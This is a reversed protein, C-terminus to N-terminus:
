SPGNIMGGKIVMKPKAGFFQPGVAGLRRSVRRSRVSTTRCASPSPRISPSKPWTACYASITTARPCRRRASGRRREHFVGDSDHAHVIRRRPGNGALRVFSMSLVGLDHLVNEAAQTEPRVRSEAFSVDSPIKPNLNHCVRIMDFLARRRNIGFPLTPNTSSPLVYPM